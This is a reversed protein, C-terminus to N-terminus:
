DFQTWLTWQIGNQRQSTSTMMVRDITLLFTFPSLLNMRTESWNTRGLWWEVTWGKVYTGSSSTLERRRYETTDCIGWPTQIVISDFAKKCAVLNIYRSSTRERSQTLFIRSMVIQDTRSRNKRFITEPDRLTPDIANKMRNLLVRNLVGKGPIHLLTTGYLLEVHVGIETERAEASINDPGVSKCNNM